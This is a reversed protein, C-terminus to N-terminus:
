ALFLLSSLPLSSFSLPLLSPISLCVKKVLNGIEENLSEELRKHALDVEKRPQYVFM